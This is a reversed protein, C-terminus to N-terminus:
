MKGMAQTKWVEWSDGLRAPDQAEDPQVYKIPRRFSLATALQQANV